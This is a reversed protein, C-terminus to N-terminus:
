EAYQEINEAINFLTQVYLIEDGDKVDKWHTPFSEKPDPTETCNRIDEDSYNIFDFDTVVQLRGAADARVAKVQTEQVELGPGSTYEYGWITDCREDQTDIFGKEGQKEKVFATVAEYMPTLDPIGFPNKNEM